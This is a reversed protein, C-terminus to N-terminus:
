LRRTERLRQKRAAKLKEPDAPAALRLTPIAVPQARAARLADVFDSAQEKARTVLVRKEALSM